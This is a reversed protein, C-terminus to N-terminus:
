KKRNNVDKIIKQRIHFAFVFKNYLDLMNFYILRQELHVFVLLGYGAWGFLFYRYFIDKDDLYTYLLGIIGMYASTGIYWYLMNQTKEHLFGFIIMIIDLIVLINRKESSLQYYDCVVQLLLPTTILWDSYRILIESSSKLKNVDLIAYHFSAIGLLISSYHLASIENPKLYQQNEKIYAYEDIAYSAFAISNIMSTSRMWNIEKYVDTLDQTISSDFKEM